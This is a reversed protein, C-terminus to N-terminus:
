LPMNRLEALMKQADVLHELVRKDFTSLTQAKILHDLLNLVTAIEKAKDRLDLFPGVEGCGMDCYWKTEGHLTCPNRRPHVCVNESKPKSGKPTFSNSLRNLADLYRKIVGWAKWSVISPVTNELEQVAEWANNFTAPKEENKFGPLFQVGITYEIAPRWVMGCHQCAHTHHPKVAYEGEDIHGLNCKPCHLLMPIPSPKVSKDEASPCLSLLYQFAPHYSPYCREGQKFFFCTNQLDTLAEKMSAYKMNKKEKYVRSKVEDMLYGAEAETLRIGCLMEKVKEIIRNVQNM